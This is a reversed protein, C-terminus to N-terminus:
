NQNLTRAEDPMWFKGDLQEEYLRKAQYDNFIPILNGTKASKIKKGIRNKFWFLKQYLAHHTNREQQPTM